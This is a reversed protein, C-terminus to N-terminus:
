PPTLTLVSPSSGAFLAVRIRHQTCSLPSPTVATLGTSPVATFQLTRFRAMDYWNPDPEVDLVIHSRTRSNRFSLFLGTRSRTPIM